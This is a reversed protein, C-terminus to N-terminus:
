SFGIKKTELPQKLTIAFVNLGINKFMITQLISPNTPKHEFEMGQADLDERRTEQHKEQLRSIRM